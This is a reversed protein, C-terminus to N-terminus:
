SNLSLRGSFTAQCLLLSLNVHLESLRIAAITRVLSRVIQSRPTLPILKAISVDSNIPWGAKRLCGMSSGLQDPLRHTPRRRLILHPQPSWRSCILLFPARISHIQSSCHNLSRVLLCLPACHSLSSSQDLRDCPPAALNWGLRLEGDSSVTRPLWHQWYLLLRVASPISRTHNMTCESSSDSTIKLLYHVSSGVQM